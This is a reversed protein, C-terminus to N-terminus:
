ATKKFSRSTGFFPLFRKKKMFTRLLGKQLECGLADMKISRFNYKKACNWATTPAILSIDPECNSKLFTKWDLVRDCSGEFFIRRVLLSTQIVRHNCNPWYPCHLCNSNLNSCSFSYSSAVGFFSSGWDKNNGPSLYLNIRERRRTLAEELYMDVM